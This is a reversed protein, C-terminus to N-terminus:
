EDDDDAAAAGGAAAEDEEEASLGEVVPVDPGATANGFKSNRLRPRVQWGELVAQRYELLTLEKSKAEIMVDVQGELGYLNVPGDIYEAAAAPASFCPFFYSFLLCRWSTLRLPNLSSGTNCGAAADGGAPQLGGAHDPLQLGSRREAALWAVVIYVYNLPSAAQQIKM